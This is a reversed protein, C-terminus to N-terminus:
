PQEGKVSDWAAIIESRWVQVSKPADIRLVVRNGDVRAVTIKIDSGIQISENQKRTLSLM